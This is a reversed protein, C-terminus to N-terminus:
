ATESIIDEASVYMLPFKIYNETGAKVQVFPRDSFFTYSRQLRAFAELSEEHQLLRDNMSHQLVLYDDEELYLHMTLPNKESILTNRVITDLTIRLSGPILHVDFTSGLENVLVLNNNHHINLLKLLNEAARLEEELSVLEKQRNVLGYRYIEALHDIQEEALEADHHITLILRELSEYLLDPNIENKFMSFDAEVKERMKREAELQERNEKQLYYHSFYLVNYLLGTAGYILLFINLERTGISYGVVWRFYSSIALTVLSLSVVLTSIIQLIIRQQLSSDAKSFREWLRIVLRMSEFSIYSLAVCVYLEQNSFLQEVGEMTNNVLLILLYILVGFLPGACIRFVISHIFIRMM